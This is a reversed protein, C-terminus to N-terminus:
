PLPLGLSQLLARFRADGRLGDFRPDIGLFAARPSRERVAAKLLEFVRGENGPALHAIALDYSSVFESESMQELHKAVRAAEERRGAAGYAHALAAEYMSGKEVVTAKEFERIAQNLMGKQEYALGLVLRAPGFNPDMEVANRGDQIARDYQRAYFYRSSVWANIINSLPDLERARESEAIAEKHRGVLSLFEGYWHHANAYNSNLEIARRFEREAGAWDRDYYLKVFALSTHAEALSDDATLAKEIAAEAHPFTESPALYGYWGLPIWSDALGDYALAYEPDKDIAQQFFGIAMKLGAATRRNSLYRGKAYKQYADPDAARVYAAHPDTLRTREPETLTVRIESAIKGAVSAQLAFIDRLDGEYSQSWLRKDTSAETLDVNIRVRDGFRLVSGDVVADVKLERGIEPLSKGSGRYHMSSTRSIVRLASIGQLHHRLADTMGDVFYDQNRDQSLNALPLVALTRIPGSGRSASRYANALMIGAAALIVALAAATVVMPRRRKAPQTTPAPAATDQPVEAPCNLPAIFRYGRRALTEIFRPSQASDGLAARLRKMAANLSHEFDVYTEAAWLRKQLEDRTVVEGAHEILMSLLDLPQGQLRVRM